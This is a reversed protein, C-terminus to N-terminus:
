KKRKKKLKRSRKQANKNITKKLEGIENNKELNVGIPLEKKVLSTKYDLRFLLSIFSYHINNQMISFM